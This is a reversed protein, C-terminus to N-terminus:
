SAGVINVKCFNGLDSFFGIIWPNSAYLKVNPFNQPQTNQIKDKVVDDIIIEHFYKGMDEYQKIAIQYEKGLKFYFDIHYNVEGNVASCIQFHGDKHIFLAPIRDGYNGNDKDATFHFVNTWTWTPLQTVKIAFEINYM